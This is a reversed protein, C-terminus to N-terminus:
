LKLSKRLSDATSHVYIKATISIDAHGMVKSITYIDVGREYLVSGYSHRLEHPTLYPIGLEHSMETMFKKYHWDFADVTCFDTETGLIFGETKKFKKMYEIFEGSVPIIRRSSKSKLEGDHAKVTDPTIARKVSIIKQVYDIDGWMLGLAESRRLGTNLVLYVFLGGDHNRAYEQAYQSQEQTYALKEIEPKQSKYTVDQVPNKYCVDNLLAQEFISHLISKHRKLNSQALFCHKNLYEQVNTQTIDAMRAKRFYPIMYKQVNIRYTCDYTHPKVRPKKYTELWIKAWEEFTCSKDVLPLNSRLAVEQNIKWEEAQKRADEKSISSYFSKRILNGDLTKGTTIKVEYLGGAHNPQEKKPRPM